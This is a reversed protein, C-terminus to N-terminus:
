ESAFRGITESVYTQRELKFTTSRTIDKKTKGQALFQQGGALNEKLELCRSFCISRLRKDVQLCSSPLFLIQKNVCVSTSDIEVLILKVDIISFYLNVSYKYMALRCYMFLRDSHNNFWQGLSRCVLSSVM